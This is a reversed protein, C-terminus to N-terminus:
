KLKIPLHGKENAKATFATLEELLVQMQQTNALLNEYLRGDNVVRAVTGQGTNVKELIVRLEAITKSLQETTDVVSSVLKDTKVDTNKLVTAGAACFKRFEELAETARKTAESLNALTSKFHAKASSDGVIDNANNVLSSFSDVLDEFKKQSEEPFFESTMGVSGQLTAGDALFKEPPHNPDFPHSRLEIYSSGLGRTMLKVGVDAPINIYRKKIGLVVVVQHTTRGTKLDEVPRPFAVKIVSGVAYGALRVPTGKQVGPATPFRVYVEFSRRKAVATPLDQFKFILWSLAGLAVLVFIGM